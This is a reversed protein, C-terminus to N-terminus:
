LLLHAADHVTQFRCCEDDLFDASERIDSLTASLM